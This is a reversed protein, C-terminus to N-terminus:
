RVAEIKLEHTVPKIAARSAARKEVSKAAVLDALIRTQPASAPYDKRWDLLSNLLVRISQDEFDQQEKMVKAAAFFPACFPNDPFAEALNVGAALEAATFERNTTGWTIRTRVPANNVVLRYRNLERNFPVFPTLARSGTPDQPNEFCFPYRTSEIKLVGNVYGLVTHGPSGAARGSAFDVTLTGLDGDFGLAKLFAYAFVLHGNPNPHIGDNALIYDAGFKAKAQTLADLMPTYVDAFIVNEAKAVDRATDRLRALTENYRAADVRPQKFKAPDVVGPSGAIITRVGGAKLQRISDTLSKRYGEITDTSVPSYKGDNMGFCLTAVSPNFTLVDNELRNSFGSATDFGRGAQITAVAELPACLLLYEQLYLTYIRRATISDGCFAVLDGRQVVPAARLTPVFLASLSLAVSLTLSALRPNM